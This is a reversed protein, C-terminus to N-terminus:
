TPPVMSLQTRRRLRTGAQVYDEIVPRERAARLFRREALGLRRKFTSLSTQCAEAADVLSMREVHRLTFATRERTPIRDLVDYIEQLARRADLSPQECHM